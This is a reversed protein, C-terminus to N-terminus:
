YCGFGQCEGSRKAKIAFSKQPSNCLARSNQFQFGGGQPNVFQFIGNNIIFKFGQYFMDLESILIKKPQENVSIKVLTKVQEGRTKITIIGGETTADWCDPNGRWENQKISLLEEGNENFFHGSLRFPSNEFEPPDIRLLSFEEILIVDKYGFFENSGLFLRPCDENLYLQNKFGQKKCFPSQNAIEIKELPLFGREKEDHHSGCLLTIGEASHHRCDMFPPNFHEYQYIGSGCIVCGFGCRQRVQRAIKKPINRSLNFENKNSM